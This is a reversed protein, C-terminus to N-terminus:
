GKEPTQWLCVDQVESSVCWRGQVIRAPLGHRWCFLPWMCVLHLIVGETVMGIGRESGVACIALGIVQILFFPNGGSFSSSTSLEQCLVEGKSGRLVALSVSFFACEEDLDYGLGRPQGPREHCIHPVRDGHQLFAFLYGVRRKKMCLLIFFFALAPEFM